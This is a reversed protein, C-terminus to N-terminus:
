KSQAADLQEVLLKIMEVKEPSGSVIIANTRVDAAIAQGKDGFVSLLVKAVDEAAAFKLYFVNLKRRAGDAAARVEREDVRASVLIVTQTSEKGSASEMAQAVVTKGSRLRVTTKTSITTEPPPLAEAAADGDAGGRPKRAQGSKEVQLDILITGDEDVRPLASILTGYDARTITTPTNSFGAGRDRPGFPTRTAVTAREGFQATTLQGATTALRVRSLGALKGETELERLRAVFKEAAEPDLGAGREGSGSFEVISVEITVLKGGAREAEQALTLSAPLFLLVILSRLLTQMAM